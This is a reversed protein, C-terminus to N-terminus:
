GRLAITNETSISNARHLTASNKFEQKLLQEDNAAMQMDLHIQHREIQFKKSFHLSQQKM